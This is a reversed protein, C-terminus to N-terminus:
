KELGEIRWELNSIQSRLEYNQEQCNELELNLNCIERELKSIIELFQEETM